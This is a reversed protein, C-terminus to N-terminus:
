GLSGQLRFQLSIRRRSAAIQESSMPRDAFMVSVVSEDPNGSDEGRYVLELGIKRMASLSPSNTESAYGVVPFDPQVERARQIAERAVEGAYGRAQHDVAIRGGLNWAVNHLMSCGGNGILEPSGKLRLIWIGLGHEEWGAQWAEVMTRTTEIDTHRLTPTHEWMRPDSYIAFLAPVDEATPPSLTLRETEVITMAEVM